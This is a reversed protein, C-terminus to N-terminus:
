RSVIPLYTWIWAEFAGIDIRGNVVRPFGNGRQDNLPIAVLLRTLIPDGADIAPSGPLLAHTETVGGNDQLPGLIPDQGMIDGTSSFTCTGPSELLNYGLSTVTTNLQYCDNLDNTSLDDNNALISNAVSVQAGSQFAVLGGGRGDNTVDYDAINDAITTHQISTPIQTFIGGGWTYAINGSITSNTLTFLSGAYATIGGGYALAVNNAVLSNELSMEKLPVSHSDYYIGGGNTGAQNSDFTSSTIDLEANYAYIGGGYGAASNNFFRGEHITLSNNYTSIGGGNSQSTNSGISSYEIQTTGSLALLGGGNSAATNFAIISQQILLSCNYSYIGGGGSFGSTNFGFVQVDDLALSLSNCNVAGGDIAVPGTLSTTLTMGTINVAETNTGLLFFISYPIQSEITTSGSGGGILQMPSTIDLDGLDGGGAATLYYTGPPLFIQDMVSDQNAQLIAERLSCGEPTCGSPDPDDYRTVIFVNAKAPNVDWSLWAPLLLTLVIVCKLISKVAHYKM